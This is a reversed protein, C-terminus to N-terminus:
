LSSCVKPTQIGGRLSKIIGTVAGVEYLEVAVLPDAHSTECLYNLVSIDSQESRGLRNLTSSLKERKYDQMYPMVVNTNSITVDIFRASFFVCRSPVKFQTRDVGGVNLEQKIKSVRYYYLVYMAASTFIICSVLVLATLQFDKHFLM